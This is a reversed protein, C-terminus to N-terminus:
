YECDPNKRCSKIKPVLLNLTQIIERQNSIMTREFETYNNGTYEPLALALYSSLLVLFATIQAM